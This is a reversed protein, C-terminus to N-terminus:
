SVGIWVAGPRKVMPLAVMWSEWALPTNVTAWTIWFDELTPIALIARLKGESVRHSM